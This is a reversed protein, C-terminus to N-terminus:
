VLSRAVPAKSIVPHSCPPAGLLTFLDHEMLPVRWTAWTISGTILLSHYLVTNHNRCAPVYGKDNTVALWTMNVFTFSELYYSWSLWLCGKTWYSERPCCCEQWRFCSLFWLIQFITDVSLYISMHLAVPITSSMFHKLDYRKDYLTLRFRCWQLKM